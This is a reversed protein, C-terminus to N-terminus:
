RCPNVVGEVAHGGEVDLYHFDELNPVLEARRGIVSRLFKIDAPETSRFCVFRRAQSTFARSVDAPRRSVGVFSCGFHRGFHIARQFEPPTPPRVAGAFTDLEDCVITLDPIAMPVRCVYPFLEVANGPPVIACRAFGTPRARLWLIAAPLSHFKELGPEELYEAMHDFVLLRPELAVIQERVWSSKGTGTQGCM